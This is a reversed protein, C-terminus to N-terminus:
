ERLPPTLRINTFRPVPKLWFYLLLVIRSTQRRHPVHLFVGPPPSDTAITESARQMPHWVWPRPGNLSKHLMCLLPAARGARVNPVPGTCAQEQVLVYCVGNSEIPRVLTSHLVIRNSSFFFLCSSGGGHCVSTRLFHPQCPIPSCERPVHMSSVDPRIRTHKPLVREFYFDIQPLKESQMTLAFM